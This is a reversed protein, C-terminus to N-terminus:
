SRIIREPDESRLDRMANELREAVVPPLLSGVMRRLAGTLLCRVPMRPSHRGGRPGLDLRHCGLIHPRELRNSGSARRPEDCTRPHPASRCAWGNGDPDDFFAFANWDGGKGEVWEGDEFHRVESIEVGRAALEERGADIDDVM